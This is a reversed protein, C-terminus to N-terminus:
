QGAAAPSESAQEPPALKNSDCHYYCKDRELIHLEGFENECCVYCFSAPTICETYKSFDTSFNFQCYKTVEEDGEQSPNKCKSMDGVKAAQTMQQVM